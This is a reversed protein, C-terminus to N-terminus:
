NSARESARVCEYCSCTKTICVRQAEKASYSNNNNNGTRTKKIARKRGWLKEREREGKIWLLISCTSNMLNTYTDRHETRREPRVIKERRKRRKQLTKWPIKWKFPINVLNTHTHTCSYIKAKYQKRCRSSFLTTPFFLSVILWLM